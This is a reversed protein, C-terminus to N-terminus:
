EEEDTVLLIKEKLDQVLKTSDMTSFFDRKMGNEVQYLAANLFRVVQDKPIHMKYEYIRNRFNTPSMEVGKAGLPTMIMFLQQPSVIKRSLIGKNELRALESNLDLATTKITTDLAAFIDQDTAEGNEWIQNFAVLQSKTPIFNLEPPKEKVLKDKLFKAGKLLLSSVQVDTQPHGLNREYIDRDIRDPEGPLSFSKPLEPLNQVLPAQATSKLSDLQINQKSIVLPNIFLNLPQEEGSTDRITPQIEPTLLLQDEPEDLEAFETEQFIPRKVPPRPENHPIPEPDVQRPPLITWQIEVEGSKVAKYKISFLLVFIAHVLLSLIITKLFLNIQM